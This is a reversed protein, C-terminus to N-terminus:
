EADKGNLRAHRDGDDRLAIIGIWAISALLKDVGQSSRALEEIKEFAQAYDDPYMEIHEVVSALWQDESHTGELPIDKM